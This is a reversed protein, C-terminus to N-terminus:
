PTLVQAEKASGNSQRGGRQVRFQLGEVAIPEQTVPPFVPSVSSLCSCYFSPHCQSPSNQRGKSRLMTTVPAQSVDLFLGVKRNPVLEPSVWQSCKNLTSPLLSRLMMGELGHSWSLKLLVAFPLHRSRPVSSLRTHLPSGLWPSM